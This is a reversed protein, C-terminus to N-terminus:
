LATRLRKATPEDSDTDSEEVKRRELKGVTEQSRKDKGNTEAYTRKEDRQQEKAETEEDKVNTM